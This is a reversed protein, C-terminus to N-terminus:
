REGRSETRRSHERLLDELSVPTGDDEARILREASRTEGDAGIRERSERRESASTSMNFDLMGILVGDVRVRLDWTGARGIESNGRLPLQRECLILNEGQRLYDEMRHAFQLRGSKDYYEFEITANREAMDPPTFLKIYPQIAGDDVSASEGIRRDWRGDRRKENLLFGIDMLTENSGLGYEPRTRARSTARRAATTMRVSSTIPQVSQSFRRLDVKGFQFALLGIYAVVVALAIVPSITASGSVSALSLMAVVVGLLVLWIYQGRRTNM